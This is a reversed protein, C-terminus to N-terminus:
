KAFVREPARDVDGAKTEGIAFRDADFVIPRPRSGVAGEQMVDRAAGALIEGDHQGRVAVGVVVVVEVEIDARSLHARRSLSSRQSTLGVYRRGRSGNGGPVSGRRGTAAAM